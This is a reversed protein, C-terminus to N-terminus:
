VLQLLLIKELGLDKGAGGGLSEPPAVPPFYSVSLFTSSSSSSPLSFDIKFCIEWSYADREPVLTDSTCSFPLSLWSDAVNELGPAVGLCFAVRELLTHGRGLRVDSWPKVVSKLLFM